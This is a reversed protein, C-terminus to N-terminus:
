RAPSRGPWHGRRARWWDAQEVPESLGARSALVGVRPPKTAAQGRGSRLRTRQVERNAYVFTRYYDVKFDHGIQHFSETFVEWGLMNALPVLREGDRGYALELQEAAQDFGRWDLELRTPAEM